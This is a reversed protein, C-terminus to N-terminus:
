IEIGLEELAKELPHIICECDPDCKGLVGYFVDLSQALLDVLKHHNNVATTMFEINARAEAVNNVVPWGFDHSFAELPDPDWWAGVQCVRRGSAMGHHTVGTPDSVIDAGSLFSFHPGSELVKLETYPALAWPLPSHQCASGCDTM